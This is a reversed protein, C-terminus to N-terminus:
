NWGHVSWYNMCGMSVFCVTLRWAGFTMLGEDIFGQNSTSQHHNVYHIARPQTWCTTPPGEDSNRSSPQASNVIIDATSWIDVLTAAQKKKNTEAAVVWQQKSIKLLVSWGGRVRPEGTQNFNPKIYVSCENRWARTMPLCNVMM